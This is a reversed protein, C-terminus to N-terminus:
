EQEDICEFTHHVKVAHRHNVACNKYVVCIVFLLESEIVHLGKSGQKRKIVRRSAKKRKSVKNQISTKIDEEIGSKILANEM